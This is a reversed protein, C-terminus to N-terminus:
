VYAYAKALLNIVIGKKDERREGREKRDGNKRKKQLCLIYFNEKDYLM